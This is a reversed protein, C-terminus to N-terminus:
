SKNTSEEKKNPETTHQLNFLKQCPMYAPLMTNPDMDLISLKTSGKQKIRSKEGRWIKFLVWIIHEGEHKKCAFIVNWQKCVQTVSNKIKKILHIHCSASISQISKVTGRTMTIKKIHVFIM